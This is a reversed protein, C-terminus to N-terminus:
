LGKTRKHQTLKSENNKHWESEYFEGLINGAANINESIDPNRLHEPYFHYNPQAESYLGVHPIKSSITKKTRGTRLWDDYDLIAQDPYGKMFGTGLTDLQERDYDKNNGIEIERIKKLVKEVWNKHGEWGSIRDYPIVFPLKSTKSMHEFGLLNQVDVMQTRKKDTPSIFPDGDLRFRIGPNKVKLLENLREIGIKVNELSEDDEVVVFFETQPKLGAMTLVVNSDVLNQAIEIPLEDFISEVLEAVEAGMLPDHGLKGDEEISADEEITRKEM